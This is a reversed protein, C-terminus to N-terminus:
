VKWSLVTELMAKLYEARHLEPKAYVIKFEDRIYRIFDNRLCELQEETLAYLFYRVYEYTHYSEMNELFTFSSNQYWAKSHAKLAATIAYDNGSMAYLRESSILNRFNVVNGAPYTHPLTYFRLLKELIEVYVDPGASKPNFQCKVTAHAIDRLLGIAEAFEKKDASGVFFMGQKGARIETRDIADHLADEFQEKSHPAWQNIHDTLGKSMGFERRVINSIDIGGSGNVATFIDHLFKELNKSKKIAGIIESPITYVTADEKHKLDTIFQELELLLTPQM